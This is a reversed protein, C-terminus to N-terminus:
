GSWGACWGALEEAAVPIPNAEGATSEFAGPCRAMLLCALLHKCVPPSTRTPAGPLCGGYAYRTRGEAAPGEDDDRPGLDRFAALTFAPCTCNWAQLRVEYGMQGARTPAPKKAPTKPAAAASIVFFVATSSSEGEDADRRALRRVLGRDLIDLALLLENPFLCHLTLMLPKADSPLVTALPSASDPARQSTLLRHGLRSILREIFQVPLSVAGNNRPNEM